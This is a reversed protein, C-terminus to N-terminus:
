ASTEPQQMWYMLKERLVTRFEEKLREARPDARSGSGGSEVSDGGDKADTTQKFQRRQYLAFLDMIEDVMRVMVNTMKSKQQQVELELQYVRNGSQQNEELLSAMHQQMLEKGARILRLQEKCEALEEQVRESRQVKAQSTRVWGLLRSNDQACRVLRDELSRKSKAEADVREHLSARQTILKQVRECAFKLQRGMDDKALVAHARLKTLEDGASRVRRALAALGQACIHRGRSSLEARHEMERRTARVANEHAAVRADAASRVRQLEQVTAGRERAQSRLLASEERAARLQWRLQRLASEGEVKKFEPPPPANQRAWGPATETESLRARLEAAERASRQARGEAEAVRSRADDLQARANELESLASDLQTRLTRTEADAPAPAPSPRPSVSGGTSFDGVRMGARPTADCESLFQLAGTQVGRTLNLASLLHVRASMRARLM